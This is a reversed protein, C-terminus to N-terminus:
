ESWEPATIGQLSIRGAELDDRGYGIMDLFADNAEYVQQEGVVVVGLVNAERLRGLLGTSERLAAEARRQETLDTFMAYARQPRGQEDRGEPVATAQLWRIEGTQGHPVGLMVDSVMDGTRLARSVPLEDVPVPSGDEHVARRLGGPPWATIESQALGLMQGAAPNAGLVTGDAAYDIVGEPMTEFVGRLPEERPTPPGAGDAPERPRRVHATLPTGCVRIGPVGRAADPLPQCVYDLFPQEFRGGRSLQGGAESGHVPEGSNMIQALIEEGG